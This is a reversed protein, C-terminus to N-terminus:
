KGAAKDSLILSNKADIAAAGALSVQEDEVGRAGSATVAGIREGNRMVPVGGPFTVGNM